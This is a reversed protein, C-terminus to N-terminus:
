WRQETRVHFGGAYESRSFRLSIGETKSLNGTGCARAKDYCKGDASAICMSTHEQMGVYTSEYKLLGRVTMGDVTYNQWPIWGHVAAEDAYEAEGATLKRSKKGVVLRKTWRPCWKM